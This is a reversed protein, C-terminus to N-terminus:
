IKLILSVNISSSFIMTQFAAHWVGVDGILKKFCSRFLCRPQNAHTGRWQSNRSLLSFESQTKFIYFLRILKSFRQRKKGESQIKFFDNVLSSVSKFDPMKRTHKLLDVTPWWQLYYHHCCLKNCPFFTVVCNLARNHYTSYMSIPM